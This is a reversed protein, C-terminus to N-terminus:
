RMKRMKFATKIAEAAGEITIGGTNIVVDYQAPDTVDTSFNKRIFAKRNNETKIVYQEAATRVCRRDEMVYRIRDELPAIIRVKFTNARPLIYNAGRGVIIAIGYRGITGIVKTLHQMYEDPWLHRDRFLASIFSDRLTM